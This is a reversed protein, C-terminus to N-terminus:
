FAVTQVSTIMQQFMPGLLRRLFELGIIIVIPSLDIGSIPPILKRGFNLIPDTLNYLLSVAPNYTGPNIWSLLARVIILIVFTNLVLDVLEAITWVALMGFPAQGGQLSTKLFGYLAQLSFLAILSAFDYHGGSPIIKRLPNLLPKTIKVVFQAVPNFFDAGVWQMLFRLLVIFIYIKFVTDLLFVFPDSNM